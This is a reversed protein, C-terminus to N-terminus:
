VAQVSSSEKTGCNSVEQFKMLSDLYDWMALLGGCPKLEARFEPYEKQYMQVMDSKTALGHKVNAIRDALKLDIAKPTAKIKPLTKEHREKRNRGLKDTVAYVLEAVEIGFQKKIKSYSAATDEITDHLWGGNRIVPDTIGFFELVADVEELHEVYPTDVDYTQGGHLRIAFFRAAKFADKENM